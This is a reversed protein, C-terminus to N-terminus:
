LSSASDGLRKAKTRLGRVYEKVNVYYEPEIGRIYALTGMLRRRDVSDDGRVIANFLGARLRRKRERGTTPYGANVCLGTILMKGKGSLYRTKKMNVQFGHGLLVSEVHPRLDVLAKKMEFSFALDDAYRSYTIGTDACIAQLADDVPRFVLNSLCPSAVGGQPLHGQYTCLKTLVAAAEPGVRAEQFVKQVQSAVISPFFDKIDMILVYKQSAHVRAHDATRGGKVFGYACHSVPIPDLVNRLIWTQMGKLGRSPAELRRKDGSAKRVYFSKYFKDAKAAINLLNSPSTGFALAIDAATELM